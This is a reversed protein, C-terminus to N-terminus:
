KNATNLSDCIMELKNESHDTENLREADMEPEGKDGMLQAIEARAKNCKDCYVVWVEQGFGNIALEMENDTVSECWECDMHAELDM